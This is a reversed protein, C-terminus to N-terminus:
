ANFGARPAQKLGYLAKKLCCVHNPARSDIFGSPQEMYVIDNLNGNLFADKIDLQHLPWRNLFALSLIIRVSSAKVVHSFTTSYDLGSVQTFGQSVLRAKFKDITGDAHFKTRFVWKSCVVNSQPPRLVLDWTYNQKLATMEDCMAVYWKPDKAGVKSRTVMPHDPNADPMSSVLLTKTPTVQPNAPPTVQPTLLHRKHLYLILVYIVLILQRLPHHIRLLRPNVLLHSIMVILPSSLGLYQFPLKMLNLMDHLISGGQLYAIVDIVKINHAKDLLFVHLVGLHLNTLLTKEYTRIFVAVLCEFIQM